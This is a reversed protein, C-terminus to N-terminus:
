ENSVEFAQAESRAEVFYLPRKRSEDLNRWVYEGIVGLMAINLGGLLLVAVMLSSWGLVAGGYVLYRGVILLAYTFGVLAIASGLWTMARLPLGSFAIIWDKALDLRSSLNWKSTGRRRAPRDYEVSDQRFGAWTVLGFLSTNREHCAGVSDVVARDLLYFDIRSLDFRSAADGTCWSLIWYFTNALTRAFLPEDDRTRRLAWVIHAGNKWKRLMEPIAAPDDQGDASLCVVVKGRSERFGARLATHSGSRRSLRICRARQDHFDRVVRFTDDSSHDDVVIIEFKEDPLSGELVSITQTLIEAINASENYAPIVLTIM